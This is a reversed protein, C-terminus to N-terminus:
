KPKRLDLSIVRNESLSKSLEIGKAVAVKAAAKPRGFKVQNKFKTADAETLQVRGFAYSQISM